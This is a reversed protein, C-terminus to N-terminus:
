KIKKYLSDRKLKRKKQCEITDEDFQYFFITKTLGCKSCTNKLSDRTNKVTFISAYKIKHKLKDNEIQLNLIFLICISFILCSIFLRM